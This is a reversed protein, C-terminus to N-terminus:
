YATLLGEPTKHVTIDTDYLKSMTPCNILEHPTGAAFVQGDKLACLYDAYRSAVNLDHVVMIITRNLAQCSAKLHRLITAQSAIDLNNLPEDLLVYPTEQALIMAIFARQKQGGSCEDLYQDALPSLDLQELYRDVQHCDKQSLHGHCLPYRGFCVLQRVTLRSNIHSEQHLIALKKAREDRKLARLPQADLFVEGEDPQLLGGLMMLFTSKGAGNPGIIATLQGDPFSLDLPGILQKPYAKRLSQCSIM